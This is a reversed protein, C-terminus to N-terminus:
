NLVNKRMKSHLVWLFGSIAILAGGIFILTIFVSSLCATYLDNLSRSIITIKSIIGSLFVIIPIILTVLGASAAAYYIYRIAKHKWKNTFIFLLIIAIIVALTIGIYINIKFSYKLFAKQIQSFYTLEIHSVYIKDAEKVFKNLSEESFDKDTLNKKNIYRDLASRLSKQFDSSNVKLKNGAYFDDIYYQVDKRVLVEDIFDDFFSKDLGSADGINLLDDTIEACLDKYYDTSNLTDTLYSPSFVTFKLASLLSCFFICLGLIFSLVLYMVTTFKENRFISM